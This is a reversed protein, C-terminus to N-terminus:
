GEKNFTFEYFGTLVLDANNLGTFRFEELVRPSIEIEKGNDIFRCASLDLRNIESLRNYLRRVEDFDITDNM